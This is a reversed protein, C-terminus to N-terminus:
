NSCTEVMCAAAKVTKVQVFFRGLICATLFQNDGTSM